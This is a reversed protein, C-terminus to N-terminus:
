VEQLFDKTSDFKKQPNKHNYKAKYFLDHLKLDPISLNKSVVEQPIKLLSLQKEHHYFINKKESSDYNLVLTQNANHM